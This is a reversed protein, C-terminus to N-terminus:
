KSFRQLICRKESDYSDQFGLILRRFFVGFVHLVQAVIFVGIHMGSLAWTACAVQEITPM